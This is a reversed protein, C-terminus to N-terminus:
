ILGWEKRLTYLRKPSIDHRISVDLLKVGAALDTRIEDYRIPKKYPGRKRSPSVEASGVPKASIKRTDVKMTEPVPLGRREAERRLYHWITSHDKKFVRGMHSKGAKPFEVAADFAVSQRVAVIEAHQSSGRIAELSSGLEKAKAAVFLRLPDLALQALYAQYDRVHQDFHTPCIMWSPLVRKVAPANGNAAAVKRAAAAERARRALYAAKLRAATPSPDASITLHMNM